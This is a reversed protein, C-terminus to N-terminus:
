KLIEEREVKKLGKFVLDYSNDIMDMIESEPIIPSEVNVTNWHKKNMHYGPEVDDSYKGRLFEAIVPDCKLNITPAGGDINFLAFMKSGVKLVLTVDDFPFSETVGKKALCYERIKELKM